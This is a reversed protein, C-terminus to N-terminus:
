QVVCNANPKSQEYDLSPESFTEQVYVHEYEHLSSAHNAKYCLSRDLSIHLVMPNKCYSHWLVCCSPWHESTQHIFCRCTVSTWLNPSCLYLLDFSVNGVVRVSAGFAHPPINQRFKARVVGSNGHPRIVCRPSILYPELILSRVYSFRSIFSLM